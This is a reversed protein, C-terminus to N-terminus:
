EAHGRTYICKHKLLRIEPDTMCIKRPPRLVSGGWVRFDCICLSIEVYSHYQVFKRPTFYTHIGMM